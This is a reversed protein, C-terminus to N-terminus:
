LPSSTLHESAAPFVQIAAVEPGFWHEKVWTTDQYSPVRDRRSFSVHYWARDDYIAIASLILMGSRAGCRMARHAATTPTREEQTVGYPLASLHPIPNIITGEALRQDAGEASAQCHAWIAHNPDDFIAKARAKRDADQIEGLSSRM